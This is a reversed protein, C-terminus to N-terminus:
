LLLKGFLAFLKTNTQDLSQVEHYGRDLEIVCVCMSKENKSFLQIVYKIYVEEKETYNDQRM